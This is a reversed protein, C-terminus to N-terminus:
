EGFDWMDDPATSGEPGWVSEYGPVFASGGLPDRDPYYDSMEEEVGWQVKFFGGGASSELNQAEFLANQIFLAISYSGLVILTGVVAYKITKQSTKIKEEDGGATMWIFGAYFINVLFITGLLSLAIKIINVALMRPDEAQGFDAGKEGAAAQLQGGIQATDIGLDPEVNQAWVQNSFSLSLLLLFLLLFIKKM